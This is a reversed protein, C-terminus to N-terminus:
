LGKIQCLPFRKLQQTVESATVHGKGVRAEDLHKYSNGPLLRPEAGSPEARIFCRKTQQQTITTAHKSTITRAHHLYAVIDRGFKYNANHGPQVMRSLSLLIEYYYLM